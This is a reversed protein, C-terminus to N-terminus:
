DISRPGFYKCEAIKSCYHRIDIDYIEFKFLISDLEMISQAIFFAKELEDSQVNIWYGYDSIPVMLPFAGFAYELFEKELGKSIKSIIILLLSYLRIADSDSKFECEAVNIRGPTKKFSEAM